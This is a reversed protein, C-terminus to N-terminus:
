LPKIPSAQDPLFVDTLVRTSHFSCNLLELGKAMDVEVKKEELFCLDVGVNNLATISSITSVPKVKLDDTVMYTVAPKVYGQIKDKDNDRSSSSYSSYSSSSNNNSFGFETLLPTQKTNLEAIKPRLLSEINQNPQVYDGNLDDVSSYLSSLSGCAMSRGKFLSLISGLPLNLLGFLFDVFDKEAEAFVVSKTKKDVLLKLSIKAM